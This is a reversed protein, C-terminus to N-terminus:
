LLHSGSTRRHFHTSYISPIFSIEDSYRPNCVGHLKRPKKGPKTFWRRSAVMDLFAIHITYGESIFNISKSQFSHLMEKQKQSISSKASWSKTRKWKVTCLEMSLPIPFIIKRKYVGNTRSVLKLEFCFSITAQLNSWLARQLLKLSNVATVFWRM